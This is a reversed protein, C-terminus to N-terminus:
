VKRLLFHSGHLLHQRRVKKMQRVIHQPQGELPLPDNTSAMYPVWILFVLKWAEARMIVPRIMHHHTFRSCADTIEKLYIKGEGRRGRVRENMQGDVFLQQRLRSPSSYCFVLSPSKFRLCTNGLKPSRCPGFCPPPLKLEWHSNEELSASLAFWSTEKKRGILVSNRDRPESGWSRM